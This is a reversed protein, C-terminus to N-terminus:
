THIGPVEYNNGKVTLDVSEEYIDGDHTTARCTISTGNWATTQPTLSLTIFKTGERSESLDKIGSIFWELKSVNLLTSCKITGALGVIIPKSHGTIELASYLSCLLLYIHAHLCWAPPCFGEGVKM